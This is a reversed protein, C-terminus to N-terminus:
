PPDVLKLLPLSAPVAPMVLLKPPTSDKELVLEAPLAVITFLLRPPGDSGKAPTNNASWLLAPLAVIMLLLPASIANPMGKPVSLAVAPVASMVFLLPLSSSKLPREVAPAAVMVAFSPAITLNKSLLLPPVARNM